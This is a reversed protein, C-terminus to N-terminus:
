VGIDQGGGSSDSADHVRYPADISPGGPEALRALHQDALHNFMRLALLLVVFDDMLGLGPIAIEPLLDIPSVLYALAAAPILKQKAPVRQDLMLTWARQGHRILDRFVRTEQRSGDKQNDQQDKM